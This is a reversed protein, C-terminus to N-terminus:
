KGVPQKEGQVPDVRKVVILSTQAGGLESGWLM